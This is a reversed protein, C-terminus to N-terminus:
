EKIRWVEKDGFAKDRKENIIEMYKRHVSTAQKEGNILMERRKIILEYHEDPQILGDKVMEQKVTNIIERQEKFKKAQEEFLESQKRFQKAQEEFLAQQKEMENKQKQLFEQQKQLGEKKMALRSQQEYLQKMETAKRDKEILLAANEKLQSLTDANWEPRTNIYIELVPETLGYKRKAGEGETAGVGMVSSRKITKNVEEPTMRKGDVFIINTIVGDIRAWGGKSMVYSTGNIIQYPKEADAAEEKLEREPTNGEDNKKEFGEPVEKHGQKITDPLNGNNFMNSNIVAASAKLPSAIPPTFIIPLTSTILPTSTIPTKSSAIFGFATIAIIGLVLLTREVINLRQNEQTLMRKIRQFLDEKQHTLALATGSHALSYEHFSVLAELYTSKHPLHQLVIDDCCAEREQRILSSIWLFAPNFFFVTEAFSQLLNVLYDNRRIHALEHLLVAEVQKPSLNTLLGVPILITAKLYGITLPVKVLRSELLIVPKYIGLAKSLQRTMCNWAELPPFVQSKRIRHIYYLGYFVQSCKAIFFLFWLLVAFAAYKNCFTTFKAIFAEKELVISSTSERFPVTVVDSLNIVTLSPYNEKQGLFYSLQSFFSMGVVLLFFAFLIVLLNYRLYAKTTRTSSIIVGAIIAALLGQWLSHIFTWSLAKLFNDFIGQNFFNFLM